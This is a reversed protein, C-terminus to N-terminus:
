FCIWPNCLDGTVQMCLRSFCVLMLRFTAQPMRDMTKMMHTRIFSVAMVIGTVFQTASLQCPLRSMRCWKGDPALVCWSSSVRWGAVTRCCTSETRM